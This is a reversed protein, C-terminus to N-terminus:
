LKIEGYMGIKLFGDNPVRIKVAYVLNAREDKTQITKPTFEAKSSIWYIEGELEKQESNGKDVFVKIKQNLKVTALQDGTIYARLTMVSVDAIRYLAKGAATIESFKAYKTLVTGNVPNIIYSKALQDNIQEIQAKLPLVEKQIGTTTITLSSKLANHQKTLYDLQSNLDDLQKTTAANSKVLNGIRTIEKKTNNIQEQIAGLQVAVDPQKSLLAEINGELQKKKLYLQTTDIIGVLTKEKLLQGEEIELKILKGNAESSVIYEESEFTGSADFKNKNGNCGTSLLGTSIIILALATKLKNNM